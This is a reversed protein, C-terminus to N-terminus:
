RPSSGRLNAVDSAPQRLGAKGGFGAPLSSARAAGLSRMPRRAEPVAPERIGALALGIFGWVYWQYTTYQTVHIGISDILVMVFVMLGMVDLPTRRRLWNAFLRFGISLFLVLYITLGVVGGALLKALLDNHINAPNGNGFLQQLFPRELYHRVGDNWGYWRGALTRSFSREDIEESEALTLEKSYLQALDSVISDWFVLVTPVTAVLLAVLLWINRFSIAWILLWLGCILVASKSYAKYLLIGSLVLASFVFVKKLVSRLEDKFYTLYLFAATITQFAFSKVSVIDHYLGQHRILGITTHERWIHGTHIQYIGVLLPFLGALILVFLLARFRDRDGFYAQLVYFAALGNLARFTYDVWNLVSKDFAIFSFSFASYAIYLLWLKAFPIQALRIPNRFSRLIVITPFAIGLVQLLNVGGFQTDWTADIIPKAFYILLVGVQSSFILCALSAVTLLLAAAILM